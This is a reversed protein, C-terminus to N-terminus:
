IYFFLLSIFSIIYKNLSSVEFASNLIKKNKFLLKKTNFLTKNVLNEFIKVIKKM